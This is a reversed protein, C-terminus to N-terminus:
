GLSTIRIVGTGSAIIASITGQYSLDGTTEWRDGENLVFSYDNAAAGAGLKILVLDTESYLILGHRYADTVLNEGDTDVTVVTVTPKVAPM